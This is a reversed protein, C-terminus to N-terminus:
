VSNVFSERVMLRQAEPSRYYGGENERGKL